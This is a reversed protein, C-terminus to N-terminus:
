YLLYRKLIETCFAYHYAIDKEQKSLEEMQVVIRTVIRDLDEKKMQRLEQAREVSGFLEKLQKESKSEWTVAQAESKGLVHRKGGTLLMKQENRARLKQQIRILEESIEKNSLYDKAWKIDYEILQHNKHLGYSFGTM